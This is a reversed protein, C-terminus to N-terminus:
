FALKFSESSFQNWSLSIQYELFKRNMRKPFRLQFGRTHFHCTSIYVKSISKMLLKGFIYSSNWFIIKLFEESLSTLSKFISDFLM